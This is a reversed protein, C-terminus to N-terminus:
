NILYSFLYTHLGVLIRSDKHVQVYKFLLSFPNFSSYVYRLNLMTRWSEHLELLSRETVFILIFLSLFKRCIKLYKILNYKEPLSSARSRMLSCRSGRDAQHSSGEFASSCAKRRSRRDHNYLILFFIFLGRVRAWITLSHAGPSFAHARNM